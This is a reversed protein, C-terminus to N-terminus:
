FNGGQGIRWSRGCGKCTAVRVTAEGKPNRLFALLLWLGGTVLAMMANSFFSKHAKRAFTKTDVSVASSHCKPCVM